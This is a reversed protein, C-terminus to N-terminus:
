EMILKRHQIKNRYGNWGRTVAAARLLDRDNQWFHLHCTVALCAPMRRIYSQTFHRPMTCPQITYVSRSSVAATERPVLWTVALCRQLYAVETSIWFACYFGVTMHKCDYVVHACHTQQLASLLAIDFRCVVHETQFWTRVTRRLEYLRCPKTYWRKREAGLM